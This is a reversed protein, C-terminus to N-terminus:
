AFEFFAGLDELERMAYPIGVPHPATKGEELKMHASFVGPHSVVRIGPNMKVAHLLGCAHDYHGHSLIVCSLKALDKDLTAANRVLAPGQGTDFLIRESGREILAAFGHEPVLSSGLSVLNDVLITLRTLTASSSGSTDEKSKHM